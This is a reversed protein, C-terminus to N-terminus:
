EEIELHIEASLNQLSVEYLKTIEELRGEGLAAPDIFKARMWDPLQSPNCCVLVEVNRAILQKFESLAGHFHFFFAQKEKGDLLIPVVAFKDQVRGRGAELVELMDDRHLFQIKGLYKSTEM